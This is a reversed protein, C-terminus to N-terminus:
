TRTEKEQKLKQGSIEDALPSPRYHV